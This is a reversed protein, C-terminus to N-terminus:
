KVRSLDSPVLCKPINWPPKGSSKPIIQGNCDVPKGDKKAIVRMKGKLIAAIILQRLETVPLYKNNCGIAAGINNNFIDMAGAASDPLQTDEIRGKKYQHQNGKEHAIGLRIAKKWRIKQSLLAMWYAHRFADVQGGDADHDLISDHEMENGAQRAEITIHKAKCAIFPHTIVWCKEPGSLKFFSQSNCPISFIIASIFLLSKMTQIEECLRM